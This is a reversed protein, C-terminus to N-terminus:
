QGEYGDYFILDPYFADAGLDYIGGNNVDPQDVGRVQGDIDMPFDANVDAATECFDIAPSHATLHYDGNPANPNVFLQDLELFPKVTENGNYTDTENIIACTMNLSGTGDDSQFIDATESIIISSDINVSSNGEAIITAQGFEDNNVLTVNKLNLVGNYDARLTSYTIDNVGIYKNEVIMSNEITVVAGYTVAGISSGSYQNETIVSQTLLLSTGENMVLFASGGPARNGQITVGHMRIQAGYSAAIAGGGFMHFNNAIIVPSFVDVQCGESVNLGRGAGSIGNGILQSSGKVTVMASENYCHIADHFSDTIVVGDLIAVPNGGLSFNLGNRSNSIKVNKLSLDVDDIVDIGTYTQSGLIIMNEIKVIIPEEGFILVSAGGLNETDLTFSSGDKDNASAADCDAYGGIIDIADIDMISFTENYVKSAVRIEISGQELMFDTIATDISTYDCNELSDGVTVVTNQQQSMNAQLQSSGLILLIFSIFKM